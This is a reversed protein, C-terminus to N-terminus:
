RVRHCTEEMRAKPLELKERASPRFAKPKYVQRYGDIIGRIEALAVDPRRRVACRAVSLACHSLDIFQFVVRLPAPLYAWALLVRNRVSYYFRQPNLARRYQRDGKHRVFAENTGMTVYGLVRAFSCIEFEWGDSFLSPDLFCGRAADLALLVDQRLLM